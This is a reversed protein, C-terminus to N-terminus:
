NVYKKQLTWHHPFESLIIPKMLNEICFKNLGLNIAPWAPNNYDDGFITGPIELIKWAENIDNYVDFADNNGDAYILDAAINQSSFWKCALRITQPFPVIIDQMDHHCINALFQYYATPYGFKPYLQRHYDTEHLGIFEYSGLWTDVCVIKTNLGLEKIIHAMCLSSAGYWSGLEIILKPEIDTILKRFLEANINWGILKIPYDKYMFNEYIDYGHIKKLLDNM